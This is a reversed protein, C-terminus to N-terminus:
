RRVMNAIVGVIFTIIVGWFLRTRLAARSDYRLKEAGFLFVRAPWLYRIVVPDREGGLAVALAFFVCFGLAALLSTLGFQHKEGVAQEVLFNLKM